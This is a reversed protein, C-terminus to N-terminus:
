AGSFHKQAVVLGQTLFIPWIIEEHLISAYPGISRRVEEFELPREDHFIWNGTREALSRTVRYLRTPTPFTIVAIGGPRLMEFHALLMRATDQTNFHEILGISYVFDLEAPLKHGSLIDAEVLRVNPTSGVRESFSALGLRNNDIIGYFVPALIANILEFFASNGGGLEAIRPKSVTVHNEIAIKLRRATYRRTLGAAKFPKRYYRNWDTVQKEM